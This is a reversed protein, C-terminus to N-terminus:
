GFEVKVVVVGVPAEVPGLRRALFLGPRRSVNGLAFYEATGNAMAGRFYPRFAFDRGVFSDPQQANSAAITRGQANVVYIVPAGTREALLALKENMRDAARGPGAVLASRLDPYEGLVIPLLRFRQLESSLLREQQRAVRGVTRRLEDLAQGYAYARLGLAVVLTLAVVLVAALAVRVRISKASFSGM